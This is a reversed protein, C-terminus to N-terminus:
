CRQLLGQALTSLNQSNFSQYSDSQAILIELFSFHAEFTLKDWNDISQTMTQSLAIPAPTSQLRSKGNQHTITPFLQIAVPMPESQHHPLHAPSFHFKGDLGLSDAPILYSPNGILNLTNPHLNIKGPSPWAIIQGATGQSLFVADNSFYRWKEKILYLGTTTKGQGSRGIILLAANKTPHAVGFAHIMYIGFRRMIPALLTLTVDETQGHDIMEASIYLSAKIPNGDPWPQTINPLCIIAGSALTLHSRGDTTEALTYTGFEANFIQQSKQPDASPAQDLSEAHISIQPAMKAMMHCAFIEEWEQQIAPIATELQLTINCISAYM